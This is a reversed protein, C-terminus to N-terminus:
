YKNIEVVLKLLISIILFSAFTLIITQTASDKENWWDSISYNPNNTDM